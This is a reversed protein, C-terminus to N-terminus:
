AVITRLPTRPRNTLFADWVWICPHHTYIMLSTDIIKYTIVTYTILIM